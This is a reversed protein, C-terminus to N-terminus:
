KDVHCCVCKRVSVLMLVGAIVAFLHVIDHSLVVFSVGFGTLILYVALFIVGLLKVIDM